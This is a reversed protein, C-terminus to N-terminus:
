LDLDPALRTLEVRSRVGLKAYANALHTEVTREGIFLRQGIERASLGEVALAAVERERKTLAEPGDVATRARRGATGLGELTHLVRDRRLTAGLAGFREAAAELRGIAERRDDRVFAHASLVGARAAFLQWGAEDFTVIAQDLLTV